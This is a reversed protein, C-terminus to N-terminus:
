TRNCLFFVKVDVGEAMIVAGSTSKRLLSPRLGLRLRHLNGTEQGDDSRDSDDRMDFVRAM